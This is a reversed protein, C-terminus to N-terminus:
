GESTDSGFATLLSMPIFCPHKAACRAGSMLRLTLRGLINRGTGFFAFAGGRPRTPRPNRIRKIEAIVQIWEDLRQTKGVRQLNEAASEAIELPGDM